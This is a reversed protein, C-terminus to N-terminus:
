NKIVYNPYKASIQDFPAPAGAVPPHRMCDPSVVTTLLGTNLDTFPDSTAPLCPNFPNVQGYASEHLAGVQQAAARSLEAINSFGDDDQDDLGDVIGDGDSDPNTVDTAAFPVFPSYPPEKDYVGAWYDPQMRGHAEDYNILGDGDMDREDDTLIGDKVLAPGRPLDQYTFEDSSVTGDRDFDLALLEQASITGDHNADLFRMTPDNAYVVSPTLRDAANPAAVAVTAQKGDSYGLNPWPQRNGGRPDKWMSFEEALTLSDGDHDRNADSGDLPNPYPKRGPYPVSLAANGQNLDLASWYEYADSVGDGDSDPNCPDLALSKELSDPLMDNDDDTDVGNKVGDGDCDGDASGTGNGGGTKPREPGVLPSLRTSTFKKGLRSSLVRLRFRTLQPSGNKISMYKELSKPIVVLLKRTTSVDAKVFLQKGNDRRFLVSNKGKGRNFYKGKITMTGGVTVSKPTVQTITPTHKTAAGATAPVLLAGLAATMAARRLQLRTRSRLEM